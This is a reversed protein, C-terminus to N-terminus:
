ERIRELLEEAERTAEPNEIDKVGNNFWPQVQLHKLYDQPTPVFKMRFDEAIHLMAIDITDVSKGSSNTINYGFIKPIITYAFWTNHTLARSSNNNMTAKPSDILEHIAIYDEIKGGWRKVSSKSHIEPNAMKNKNLTLVFTLIFFNGV